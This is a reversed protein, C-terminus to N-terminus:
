LFEKEIKRHANGNNCKDLKNSSISQFNGKRGM